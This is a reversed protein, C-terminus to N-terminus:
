TICRKVMLLTNPTAKGDAIFNTGLYFSLAYNGFMAVFIMGMGIGLLISKTIGAVKGADLAKDYRSNVICDFM